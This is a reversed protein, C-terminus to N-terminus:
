EKLITIISNSVQEASVFCENSFTEREWIDFQLPRLFSRNKLLNVNWPYGFINPDSKGFVVVGKKKHLAAFHNFFNDVSAWTDCNKLFISLDKLKLNFRKENAGIDPEGTVGIQTVFVNNNQLTKVVEEWYPFNKPNNEGNRLRQSFPSIIVKKMNNREMELLQQVM